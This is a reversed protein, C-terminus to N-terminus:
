RRKAVPPSLIESLIIARRLAKPDRILSHKQVTKVPTRAMVPAAAIRNTDQAAPGELSVGEDNDDLEPRASRLRGEQVPPAPAAAAPKQSAEMAARELADLQKRLATMDIMRAM